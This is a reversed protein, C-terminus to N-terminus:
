LAFEKVAPVLLPAIDIANSAHPVTTTSAIRGAGARRLKEEAAKSFLAHVALCVPPRMHAAVLPKVTEIMTGASSVIDDLVVPTRKRQAALDPSSVEVTGDAHRVKRLVVYPAAAREAVAAIWQKSEEDPGILVPRDVHAKIWAALPEAAHVVRNPISYIQALSTYRHLHPDVTVLWEVYRSLLGAFTRSTVAEGQQFRRDQRMYALYPAVLGVRVAGLDRVADALFILPLLKDDPRDLTCVLVLSRDRCDSEVRLYAEGDPFRHSEVRGLPIGTLESLRGAFADSGPLALMLTNM